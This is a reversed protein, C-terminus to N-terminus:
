VSQLGGATTDQKKGYREPSAGIVNGQRRQPTPDGNSLSGTGVVGFMPSRTRVGADKAIKVQPDSHARDPQLEGNEYREIQTSM